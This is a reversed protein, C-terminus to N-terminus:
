LFHKPIGIRATGGARAWVVDDSTDPIPYRNSGGRLGIRRKGRGGRKPKVELLCAGGQIGERRPRSLSIACWLASCGKQESMAKCVDITDTSSPSSRVAM